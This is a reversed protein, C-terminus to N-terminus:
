AGHLMLPRPVTRPVELSGFVELQKCAEALVPTRPEHPGFGCVSDEGVGGEFSIIDFVTYAHVWRQEVWRRATELSHIKRRGM